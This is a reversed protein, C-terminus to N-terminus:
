EQFADPFLLMGSIGELGDPRLLRTMFVDDPVNFTTTL